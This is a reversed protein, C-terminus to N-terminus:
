TSLEETTQIVTGDVSILRDGAELKGESAGGEKVSQVYVGAEKKMMHAMAQNVESVTIELIADHVKGEPCAMGGTSKLKGFLRAALEM